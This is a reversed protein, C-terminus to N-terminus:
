KEVMHSLFSIGLSQNSPIVTFVGFFPARLLQFLQRPIVSKDMGQLIRAFIIIWRSFSATSWCSLSTYVLYERQTVDDHLARFSLSRELDVKHVELLSEVADVTVAKSAYETCISYLLLNDKEDNDLAKVVIKCAFYSVAVVAELLLSSHPLAKHHRSKQEVDCNVPHHPSSRFILYSIISGRILVQLGPNQQQGPGPRRCGGVCGPSFM